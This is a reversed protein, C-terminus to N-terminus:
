LHFVSFVKKILDTEDESVGLAYIVLIFSLGGITMGSVLLLYGDFVLTFSLMILGSVAGATIPKIYSWDYPSLGEFYWVQWARLVNIAALVSATAVAAGIVGINTILIYNLLINLIGSGLQNFMTLYQHDSMMLLYGSPGVLANTLQGIVFLMLIYQGQSFGEGFVQLIEPAYILVAIAPFLSIMFIMKTVATYIAELDDNNGNQYLRSAIPPFLQNFASLPLSLIRSILFAANYVGVASGTFFFGIMLIDTRNYAFSGLQNFTLPLSFNYYEKTESRSPSAIGLFEVRKVLLTFAVLFGLVGSVILGAAAGVVSYGLVVAGGVFVLRLFPKVISSTIVNYDMREISKFLSYSIMSLTNFPIVVATIRLIETFLVDDLTFSSITPAFLFVAGGIAVSALLSTGYALTVVVKRKRPQEEYEPIFRLLSKDGGLRALVYVLSFLVNIYTYFGYLRTGLIRTLIVTTGLGLTNSAGKGLVFLGAGESISGLSSEKESGAGDKEM